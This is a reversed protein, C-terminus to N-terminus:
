VNFMYVWDNGFRTILKFKDPNSNLKELVEQGELSGKYKDLHLVIYKVDYKRLWKVIKPMEFAKLDQNLQYYGLPVYGSYGNVIKKWHYISYYVYCPDYSGIEKNWGLPLELVIFDGPQEKLWSYILPIQKFEFNDVFKDEQGAFSFEILLLFMVIILLLNKKIRAQQKFFRKLGLSIIAIVSILFFISFRGPARIGNFGPILYYLLYFPGVIDSTSRQSLNLFLGLSLTLGVLSLIAYILLEKETLNIKIKDKAFVFLSFFLLLWVIIGPTVVYEDPLPFQYYKNAWSPLFYDLLVPSYYLVEGEPRSFNYLEKVKFYPYAIPLVFILILLFFVLLKYIVRKDLNHIKYNVFIFTLFVFPLFIFCHFSSWAVLITFFTLSLLNAWSKTKFFKHLFLFVFPLWLGTTHLRDFGHVIKFPAFAYIIGALVAILKDKTLYSILLYMGYGCVVFGFVILFNYALVPDNFLKLVPGAILSIAIENETFALTYQHPAFINSHFLHLPNSFFQHNNWSIIWIHLLADATNVTKGVFLPYTFFVTLIFFLLVVLIQLLIKKFM